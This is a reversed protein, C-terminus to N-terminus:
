NTSNLALCALSFLAQLTGRTVVTRTACPTSKIVPLVVFLFFKFDFQNGSM